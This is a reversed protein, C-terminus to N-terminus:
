PQATSDRVILEPQFRRLVPEAAPADLGLELAAAGMARLPLRVSTLTPRVDTAAPIDNFGAVAMDGPVDFGHEQLWHLAGIAMQDASGVIATIGPHEAVLRAAGDHGGARDPTVHVVHVRGGAQTFAARLGAVRDLTSRLNAQGAAVGIETHGREILHAALTTAGAVNDVLVRGSAADSNGISVTRGGMAEFGAVRRALQARYGADDLGSGGLIVLEYRHGQLMKFYAMERDVDRATDCISVLLNLPTAVEHIGRIIESFYPDGVDGVLVGVARTTGAILTQAQANPVYDLEAAARRVKDRMTDAVPYDSGSLVRSATSLSVGARAAVDKLSAM